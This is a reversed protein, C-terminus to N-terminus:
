LEDKELQKKAQKKAQKKKYHLFSKVKGNKIGEIIKHRESFEGESPEAFQTLFKSINYKSLKDEMTVIGKKPDVVLLVPSGESYQFDPILEKVYNATDDNDIHVYTFELLDKFDIAISKYTASATFKDSFLIVRPITSSEEIKLYKPLHKLKLKKVFSKLTGKMADVFSAADRKNEYPQTAFQEKREINERFTKPPRYTIITPFGKINNAACLKQNKEEDCNVAAFQAYNHGKKSAKEFEPRLQKCYGCWPAYFAVITTYNSSYIFDDFNLPNLEIINKSNSYHPPEYPRQSRAATFSICFLLTIINSLWM